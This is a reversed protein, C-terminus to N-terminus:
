PKHAEQEAQRLALLEQRIDELMDPKSKEAKVSAEAKGFARELIMEMIKIRNTPPTDDDLLMRELVGPVQRALARIDELAAGQGDTAGRRSPTRGASRKGTQKPEAM